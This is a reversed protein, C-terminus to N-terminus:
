LAVAKRREIGTYKVGDAATATIDRDNMLRYEVGDAGIIPIGGFKAFVVRTGPTIANDDSFKDLRTEVHKFAGNDLRHVEVRSAVFADPGAEILVGIAQSVQHQESVPDPLIIGGSTTEEIEEPKILVRDYVPTIGSPNDM